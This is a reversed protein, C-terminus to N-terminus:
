TMQKWMLLLIQYYYLNKRDKPYCNSLDAELSLVTEDNDGNM